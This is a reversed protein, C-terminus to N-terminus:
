IYLIRKNKKRGPTEIREQEKTKEVPVYNNKRNTKEKNRRSRRELNYKDKM